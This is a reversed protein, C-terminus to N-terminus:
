NPQGGVAHICQMLNDFGDAKSVVMDVGVAAAVEDRLSGAYVTFLMITAQPNKRRLVSAALAGNLKPMALGLLIVDPHLQEAKEIAELGDVAEGCRSNSKWMACSAWPMVSRNPIM